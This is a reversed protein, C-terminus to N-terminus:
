SKHTANPEMASCCNEGALDNLIPCDPRHNGDCSHALHTLTSVMGEMEAIKMKLDAIHREAVQKVAASERSKDRWLNILLSTEELSFGLSRARKIFRLHHVDDDGYIRYNARSRGAPSILGIEEYYRIMKASIGSAESAQGINM